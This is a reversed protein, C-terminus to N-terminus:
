ALGLLPLVAKLLFDAAFHSIMAAVLGHRWYLWRFVVGPVGNGLLAFAVLTANLRLLAVGHPIHMAGFLVAALVNATCVVGSAPPIRRVILTGVWVLTTMIGLRLWIEEQGYDVCFAGVGNDHV